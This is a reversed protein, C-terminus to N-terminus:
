ALAIGFTLGVQKGALDFQDKYFHPDAFPREPIGHAILDIKQDPVNYEGRLTARSRETMVILRASLDILQETVRRLTKDPNPLVTHLTTVVPIRLDRLFALIHAGGPGGYIGFEHQLSVVDVNSFNLFDAARRYSDRDQETIQFRVVPPYEYGGDIDDVPVIFCETGAINAVATSLDHTFTAIGCKRPPYDGVFAIKQIEAEVM